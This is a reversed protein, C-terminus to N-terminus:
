ITQQGRGRHKDLAAAHRAFADMQKCMQNQARERVDLPLHELAARHANGMIGGSCAVMHLMYMAEMVDQAGLAEWANLAGIRAQAIELSDKGFTWVCDLLQKSLHRRFDESDQTFVKDNKVTAINIMEDTDDIGNKTLDYM